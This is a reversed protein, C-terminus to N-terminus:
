FDLQDLSTNCLIILLLNVTLSVSSKILNIPPLISLSPEIGFYGGFTVGEKM